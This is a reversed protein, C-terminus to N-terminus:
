LHVEPSVNKHGFVFEQGTGVRGRVYMNIEVDNFEINILMKDPRGHM